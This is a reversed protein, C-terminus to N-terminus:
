APLETNSIFTWQNDVIKFVKAIRTTIITPGPIAVPNVTISTVALGTGVPKTFVETAQIVNSNVDVQQSANTLITCLIRAVTGNRHESVPALNNLVHNIIYSDDKNDTLDMSFVIPATGAVTDVYQKTAADQNQTPDGLGRIKPTGILSINGAPIGAASPGAQFQLDGGVTLIKVKPGELRMVSILSEGQGIEVYEQVGFNKIGPASTISLGLSNETIVTQGNIKYERGSALNIHETSEWAVNDYSWVLAHDTYGKLIIGGGDAIIDSPESGQSPNALFINKDQVLLSQVERRTETGEIEINNVYLTGPIRVISEPQGPYIDVTRTIPTLAIADELSSTKVKFSVSTSDASIKLQGTNGVTIGENSLTSIKGNIILDQDSQIYNSAPIGGLQEANTATVNFKLGTLTSANFGAVIPGNYGVIPEKPTFSEKSFIGLLVAGCYLKLIVKNANSIDVINEAVLGTTGQASEWLPGLLDWKSGNFFKLQGKNEDYWLDGAYLSVPETKSFVASSVPLFQGGNYVKLKLVSTDFWLQGRLPHAPATTNSFNELMKVLNENLYEGFGSYNKGILTIDSSIQDIQSDALTTLVTGDTKNLQYAM